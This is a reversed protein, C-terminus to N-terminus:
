RNDIRRRERSRRRGIIANAASTAPPAMPGPATLAASGGGITPVRWTMAGNM